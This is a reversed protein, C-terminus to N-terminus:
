TGSATSLTQIEGRKPSSAVDSSNNTVSCPTFLTYLGEGVGKSDNEQKYRRDSKERAVEDNRKMKKATLNSNRKM